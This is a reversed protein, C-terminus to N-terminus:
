DFISLDIVRAMAQYGEITPHAGDLLYEERLFGSQEFFASYFDIVAMYNDRAYAAIWERVRALRREMEPEDFPTPLGMVPKIGNQMAKEALERINWVIRDHSERWVVDNAGGMIVVHTPRHALVCRDFRRLMDSTTNGNIGENFVEHDTNEAIYTVWSARPGFPFGWTISDGLCVISSLYSGEQQSFLKSVASPRLSRLNVCFIILGSVYLVMSVPLTTVRRLSM